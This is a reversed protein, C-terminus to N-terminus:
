IFKDIYLTGPADYTCYTLAKKSTQILESFYTHLCKRSGWGALKDIEQM